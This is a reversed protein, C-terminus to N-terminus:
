ERRLRHSLDAMTLSEMGYTDRLYVYHDLITRLFAINTDRNAGFNHPHWWLHYVLGNRAAYTLESRIRRLRLPEFLRLRRTYPRLYHSAPINFPFGRAITDLSYCACGSVNVYADLLRLGRVVPSIDQESRPEYIRGPPNGRYAKIGKEACVSIYDNNFQNRPFVISEVSLHYRQAASIAAELDAKFTATDQGRELCYYHSFTHTAIEQYPCSVILQILSSAYHLPDEKEDRGISNMYEYPCLRRNAYNPRKAPLAKILEDRNEFFLFGVTAWTAHINYERFVDLLKPVVSRVGLLNEKYSDLTKKDRVGWALEFDLTTLLIGNKRAM